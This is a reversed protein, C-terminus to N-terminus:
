GWCGSGGDADGGGVGGYDDHCPCVLSVRQGEGPAGRSRPSKRIVSSFTPQPSLLLPVSDQPPPPFPLPLSPQPSM